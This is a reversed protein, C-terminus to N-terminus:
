IANEFNVFAVMEEYGAVNQQSLANDIPSKGFKDKRLPDAGNALLLPILENRGFTAAFTLATAANGNEAQVSAGFALLIKGVEAYGKFCIGMLASNGMSDRAEPDAGAGLLLKVAEINNYYAALLLATSGQSDKKNVDATGLCNKLAAINNTRAAEFIDM